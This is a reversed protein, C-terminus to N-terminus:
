EPTDDEESDILRVEDGITLIKYILWVSILGGFIYVFM